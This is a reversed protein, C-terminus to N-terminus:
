KAILLKKTITNQHENSITIFYAGNSLSLDLNVIFEKAKITQEMVTRGTLDSITIHLNDHHRPQQSEISPLHEAQKKFRWTRESSVKQRSAFLLLFTLAEYVEASIM